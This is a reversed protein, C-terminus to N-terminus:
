VGASSGQVIKFPESDFVIGKIKHWADVLRGSKDGFAYLHLPGRSCRKNVKEKAATIICFLVRLVNRSTLHNPAKSSRHDLWATGLPDPDLVHDATQESPYYKPSAKSSKLYIDVVWSHIIQNPPLSLFYTFLQAHDGKSTREIEHDGVSTYRTIVM